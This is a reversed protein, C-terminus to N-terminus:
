AFIEIAFDVVATEVGDLTEGILFGEHFPECALRVGAEAAEFFFIGPVPAVLGEAAFTEFAKLLKKGVAVFCWSTCRRMYLLSICSSSFCRMIARRRWVRIRVAVAMTNIVIRMRIQM